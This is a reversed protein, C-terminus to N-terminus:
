GEEAFPVVTDDTTAVPGDVHGEDSEYGFEGYPSDLEIFAVDALTTLDSAELGLESLTYLKDGVVLSRRIQGRWDISWPEAGEELETHTLRGIEEIGNRGVDLAVAGLFVEEVEYDDSYSWWQVPMVALGTAPWYLFARHDYEVESYGDTFTLNQIRKPNSLDSVDFLSVQSGTATGQETANQGIGLLLGDELPQLYASYGLLDLEGATVPATPDSLDVTYLPDTQRFTVVYAVDDVFRVSFIQEGKGLGGVSGVEVLEGDREEYVAVQSESDPGASGWWAWTPRDTSAVRLRGEYESMAFQNLLFGDITGSARYTTTAPDSIDFKHVLTTMSDAAERADGEELQNWDTWRQTAVYLSETSAYVTEGDSLIGVGASPDIGEGLDVTLLTTMGFGSFESPTFASECGLLTGEAAVEGDADELIFYPLWNDITSEEIVERNVAAARREGRLGGGAPIVFDLGVPSSTFVFRATDGVMRASLYRGDVYLTQRVTLEDPNSLDIEAFVSIESYGYEPAFIGTAVRPSIEYRSSIGAVIATDGSMLIEQNWGWPLTLSGRRVPEGSSVDIYSLQNQTLALIRVGDTKIIDPEDVGVEQVNTTSFGGGVSAVTTATAAGDDGGLARSVEAFAFDEEIFPGGGFGYGQGPLGYATVRAAAETKVYTLFGECSDFAQLSSAFLGPTVASGGGGGSTPAPRTSSVAEDSGPNATCASVVLLLGLSMAFLRLPSAPGAVRSNTRDGQIVKKV